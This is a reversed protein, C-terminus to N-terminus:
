INKLDSKKCGTQISANIIIGKDRLEMKSTTNIVNNDKLITLAEHIYQDDYGYQFPMEYIPQDSMGYNVTIVGAFYSNGNVKDFWEKAQIDITKVQTKM